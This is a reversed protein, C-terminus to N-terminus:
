KQPVAPATANAPKASTLQEGSTRATDGNSQQTVRFSVPVAEVGGLLKLADNHGARHAYVAANAGEKNLTGAKAGGDLLLKVLDAKGTNAAAM